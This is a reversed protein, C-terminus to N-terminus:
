LLIKIIGCSSIELTIRILIKRAYNKTKQGVELIDIYFAPMNSLNLLHLYYNCDFIFPGGVKQLYFSPIEMWQKVLGDTM